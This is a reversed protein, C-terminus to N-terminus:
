GKLEARSTHVEEIDLEHELQRFLRDDIAQKEWMTLLESRMAQFIKIRVSELHSMKKLSSSSIEFTFRQLNFYTSLYSHEKESIQHGKNLSEIKEFALQFLRKRAHHVTFHDEHYELKMLRILFSLTSSPVLLTVLIVIFTLYIVLDRGEIPNGGSYTYPLALAATLSLIGRMGSWGIITAELFTRKPLGKAKRYFIASTVYVWCLRLAIIALSLLLGYLTYILVQESPMVGLISRLELGILIFVFCNMLIIFIDWVAFGLVRRLSSHHQALNLSGILGNAVVALVGSVHLYDALIYTIYPITFSIVVGVIPELYKRSFPQILFGLTLGVATGGVSIKIFEFGASAFSFTGALLAVLALKYLVLASADNVLSEGEVVASLRPGIAYRKLITTTTISDTPSVIAGFAFALAWPYEPFFWKFLLGIVLTTVLVLWLALSSIEKWNKTFERFSIGFSAYYLIPPLVIVLLLNPDFAFAPIIPIFGLTAGGIVLAIPYPIGMKQSIGILLAAAFLLAIILSFHEM